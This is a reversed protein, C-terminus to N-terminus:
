GEMLIDNIDKALKFPNSNTLSQQSDSSHAMLSMWYKPLGQETLGHDTATVKFVKIRWIKTKIM